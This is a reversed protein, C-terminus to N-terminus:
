FVITQWATPQPTGLIDLIVEIEMGFEPQVVGSIVFVDGAAIENMFFQDGCRAAVMVKDAIGAITFRAVFIQGPEPAAPEIEWSLIYLAPPLAGADIDTHKASVWAPKDWYMLSVWGSDESRGSALFRAGAGLQGVIECDVNPCARVNLMSATVTATPRSEARGKQVSLFSCFVFVICWLAKLRRLARRLRGARRRRKYIHIIQQVDMDAHKRLRVRAQAENRAAHAAVMLRIDDARAKGHLTYRGAVGGSAMNMRQKGSRKPFFYRFASM